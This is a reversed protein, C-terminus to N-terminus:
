LWELQFSIIDGQPKLKCGECSTIRLMKEDTEQGNTNRIEFFPQESRKGM